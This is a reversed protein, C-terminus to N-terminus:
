EDPKENVGLLDDVEAWAEVTDVPYNELLYEEIEKELEILAEDTPEFDNEDGGEGEASQVENEKFTYQLNFSVSVRYTYYKESEKSKNKM